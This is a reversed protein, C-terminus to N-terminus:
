MYEKFDTLTGMLSDSQLLKLVQYMLAVQIILHNVFGEESSEQIHNNNHLESIRKTVNVAGLTLKRGTKNKNEQQNNQINTVKRKSQHNTQKFGTTKQGVKREISNKLLIGTSKYGKKM